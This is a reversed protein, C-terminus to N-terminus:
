GKRSLIHNHIVIDDMNTRLFCDIAEKPSNVIPENENFSTNLLIPVNTIENFASLLNYFKLNQDKKIVQLRCTGDVHVISPVLHKKDDKIKIVSEMYYNYLEDNFWDKKKEYIISPAFPRFSERRKIKTNIIDRIDKNRADALISRNGLARAGFELRGQFWGIIRGNSIKNAVIQNLEEDNSVLRYEFNNKDVSNLALLIEDNKFDPGLYPNDINELKKKPSERKIQIMASGIAGGADAPAYPIFINKFKLEQKIKGNASSNLACGGSLCLNESDYLTKAYKLIKFLYYEYVKQVSAALNEKDNEVLDRPFLNNIENSYLIKQNPIGEFKYSHDKKHHLFFKKNLKFIKDEDFINDKVKDFYISQGYSALGMLKYEDGYNSFGLFQTMMEYFIGLSDPFYIKELIEIKEESCKAINVSAFDGFGDVSVSLCEKFKSPYYSSAIHSLHHDIYSINLNKNFNYNKILHYKINIKNKIRKFIELKKPGSLYNILFYPIKKRLNSLPNSNITVSDVEHAKIQAFDLCKMISLKPFGAWHKQRNLKEEEVAFLLKGNKFIAASSDAHFSNIGIITSM